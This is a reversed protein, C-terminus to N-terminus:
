DLNRPGGVRYYYYHHFLFTRPGSYLECFEMKTVIVPHPTRRLDLAKPTKPSRM